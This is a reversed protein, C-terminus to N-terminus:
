YLHSRSLSFIHTQLRDGKTISNEEMGMRFESLEPRLHPLKRHLVV